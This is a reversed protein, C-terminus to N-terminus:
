HITREMSTFVALENTVDTAADVNTASFNLQIANLEHNAHHGVTVAASCAWDRRLIDMNRGPFKFQLICNSVTTLMTNFMTNEKSIKLRVFPGLQIEKNFWGETAALEFSRGRDARHKSKNQVVSDKCFKEFKTNTIAMRLDQIEDWCGM